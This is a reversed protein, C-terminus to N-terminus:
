KFPLIIKFHFAIQKLLLNLIRQCLSSGVQQKQNKTKRKQTLVLNLNLLPQSYIIVNIKTKIILLITFM